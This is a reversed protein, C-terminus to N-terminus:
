IDYYFFSGRATEQFSGRLNGEPKREERERCAHLWGAFHSLWEHLLPGFTEGAKGVLAVGLERCWERWRMFPGVLSENALMKIICRSPTPLHAMLAVWDYGILLERADAPVLPMPQMQCVLLIARLLTASQKVQM